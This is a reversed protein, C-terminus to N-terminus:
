GFTEGAKVGFGSLRIGSLYGERVHVVNIRLFKKDMCSVVIGYIADAHVITGAEVNVDGNVHIYDAELIRVEMSRLWTSAGGYKPNSAAILAIIEEATEEDWKITLDSLDPRNWFVADNDEIGLETGSENKELKEIINDCLDGAIAGIRSCHMAYNEGSILDKEEIWLVPGEDVKETMRHVVLGCKKERNRIQWFIPDAGRYKPMLGFHFNIFGAPPICLLYGPIRWPCGFVWVADPQYKQLWSNLQDAYQLNDIVSINAKGVFPSLVGQLSTASKKAIAVSVLLQKEVLAQITPIALSDTNCILGIKM